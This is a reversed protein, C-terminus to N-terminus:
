EYDELDLSYDGQRIQEILENVKQIDIAIERGNNSIQQVNKNEQVSIESNVKAIADKPAKDCAALTFTALIVTVLVLIIKKNFKILLFM